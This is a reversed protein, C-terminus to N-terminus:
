RAASGARVAVTVPKPPPYPVLGRLPDDSAFMRKRPPMQAVRPAYASHSGPSRGPRRSGGRSRRHLITLGPEAAAATSAFPSVATVRVGHKVPPLPARKVLRRGKRRAFRRDGPRVIRVVRHSRSFGLDLLRAVQRTREASSRAGFVVAVVRKRGRRASAVLNYGAAKTYGTKIGDAGYYSALLRNTTWIRRGAAHDTVRRFINFYEPFDFFLHRGLKAMDRATSYHGRRTLGHPNRFRTNRMGLQRARRTMMRAFRAKSGGIAEALAMAADNASKIAAARILSRVTVRQGARLRLRSAPQRAARRSIRVRTNLTLRGDRIAEFALYLTMMKTLSAPHLRRDASRAALVKGTRMDMVMVARPPPKGLATGGALLWIAAIVTIITARREMAM